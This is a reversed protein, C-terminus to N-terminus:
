KQEVMEQALKLAEEKQRIKGAIQAEHIKKLIKSIQPGAPIGLTNILEEGSVLKPPNLIVSRKKFFVSLIEVLARMWVSGEPQAAIATLCIEVTEKGSLSFFECIKTSDPSQDKLKQLVPTLNAIKQIFKVEKNGLKLAKHATEVLKENKEFSFILNILRLLQIRSRHGVKEQLHDLIPPKLSYLPSEESNLIKELRILNEPYCPLNLIEEFLKRACPQNIHESSSSYSLILFIEEKIRERAVQNILKYKHLIMDLTGEDLEFDFQTQLRFAKLMRLPDVDFAEPSVLRIKGNLLDELGDKLDILCLNPSEVYDLDLALADITFDRRKLDSKINTKKLTFDLQYGNPLVVRVLNEDLYIPSSQYSHAFPEILKFDASDLIFDFDRSERGLLSDRIFGGVLYIKESQKFKILSSLIPDNLRKKLYTWQLSGDIARERRIRDLIGNVFKGSDSTGYRKAIEVAENISVISPIDEVLLLEYISFRLINRDVVAMRELTWNKAYTKILEDICPLYNETGKVIRRSFDEVEQRFHYRSLLEKLSQSPSIERVDAQYLTQLTFERAKRRNKM